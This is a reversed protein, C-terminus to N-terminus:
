GKPVAVLGGRGAPQSGGEVQAQQSSDAVVAHVAGGDLLGDALAHVLDVGNVRLPVVAEQLHAADDGRDAAAAEAAYMQQM